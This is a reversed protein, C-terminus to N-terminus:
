PNEERNENKLEIELAYHGAVKLMDCHHSLAALMAKGQDSTEDGEAEAYFYYQWAKEKVPRSRLVRLNFGYEGIVNVARALAGAVNNVTFLLIFNNQRGGAPRSEVRSYVAFRTTNLASENISQDLLSLGYLSATEASAIAALSRDGREAVIQAAVATNSARQEEWGHRRIYGACQDLAQPHSVVTRIDALSAGEIGILNQVVPLDYIGTIYLNGTFTLDLVQGVEGAFSNELPLVACDCSGTAVAQYAAKFDPHPVLEGGPFIKGAALHAFAGEVGSYAVRLGTLLRRQYQKALEMTNKQFLRYYSSLEPDKIREAGRALVAAERATDLVTLGREAKYAAVAKVAEMRRCFLAAMESDCRDIEERAKQLDDM